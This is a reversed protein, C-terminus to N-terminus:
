NFIPFAKELLPDTAKTIHKYVEDNMKTYLAHNEMNPVFTDRMRVMAKSASDFDSYIGTGVAACIASGMGAADEQENRDVPLGFVDSIIQVFTDGKSGGGSAILRDPTVGTESLMNSFSNYLKLVIGEMLSRFMHARGHCVDFGIMVGKKYFETASLVLWEPITFLGNSGAPIQAAEKGLQELISNNCKKTLKAISGGLLDSMWSVTWMGRQIGKTIEFLYVNPVCGFNPYYHEPPSAMIGGMDKIL